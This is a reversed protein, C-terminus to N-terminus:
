RSDHDAWVVDCFDADDHITDCIVVTTFSDMFGFWTDSWALVTSHLAICFWHSEPALFVETHFGILLGGKSTCHDNMCNRACPIWLLVSSM